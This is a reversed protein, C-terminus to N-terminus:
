EVELHKEDLRKLFAEVIKNDFNIFIYKDHVLVSNNAPWQKLTNKLTDYYPLLTQVIDINKPGDIYMQNNYYSISFYDIKSRFGFFKLTAPFAYSAFASSTFFLVDYSDFTSYYFENIYPSDESGWYVVTYSEDEVYEPSAFVKEVIQEYIGNQYDFDIKWLKQAEVLRFVNMPLLFILFVILINKAWILKTKLIVAIFFAAFFINGFFLIRAVPKNYGLVFSTTNLALPLLCIGLIFLCWQSIKKFTYKRQYWCFVFLSFLSILIILQIINEDYFPVSHWLNSFSDAVLNLFSNISGGLLNTSTNYSYIIIGRITLIYIILKFSILSLMICCFTRIAKQYLFGISQSIFCYSLIIKGLFVIAITNVASSYAGLVLILLLCSAFFYLYSKKESLILAWIVISPIWLHSVVDLSFYLWYIVLPNLVIILSIVLYNFFTKQVNWYYALLIGTFSFGFLALSVTLLPLFRGGLLQNPLYSTFRGNYWSIAKWMGHIVYSWDHNGWIFHVNYYLFVINLIIFVTWFTKKYVIDIDHYKKLFHIDWEGYKELIVVLYQCGKRLPNMFFCKVTLAASVILLVISVILTPLFTNRILLRTKYQVTLSFVSDKETAIDISYPREFWVTQKKANYLNENVTIKKVDVSFKITKDGDKKQRSYFKLQVSENETNQIRITKTQYLFSSPLSVTYQIESNKTVAVGKAQKETDIIFPRDASIDVFVTKNINSLYLLFLGAILLFFAICTVLVKKQLM